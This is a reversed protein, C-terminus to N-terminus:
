KSFSALRVLDVNGGSLIVGIRRGSILGEFLAAVGVAGSPEVVMKTREFLFRTAAAIADESVTVIQPVHRQIIAFTRASLATRLGDAITTPNESPQLEGTELSRKADDANEPEIGLVRPGGSTAAAVLACGSILGGGGVPVLLTDLDSVQALFELAATGQGAIVRSDDFPHVPVAGTADIVQALTSERASLTPECEIVRAGYDLVARRKVAPANSPMVIHARTGALQAALALAQAHNGSSHTAVGRELEESSLSLVTNSAGRFKFAGVRQLQECKLFVEAGVRADLTRNTVVPTRHVQARIREAAARVDEVTPLEMRVDLLSDDVFPLTM